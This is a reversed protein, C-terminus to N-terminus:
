HWINLPTQMWCAVIVLYALTVPIFVKWGLRMTHDYRYRPFTARVWIFVFVILSTKAGLWIWGPVWALFAWDVPALWGGLFMISAMASLLIINAYEAMFFMAFAMGSYEVMHGAVIESEGEVADFPHRATEAIACVIYIIFLPFLPIWNWSLFNLGHSAFFGHNQVTVIDSLNLSGSVLLVTVLVFGLPIGFSIMQASARVAGLLAYKSNSAWGAVIVGYVGISTIAMVFLLGANVDALVIDAGFPIVAWAALAPGITLVPALWFLFRDAREPVIIEKLLLKFADAIPQILGLPGVRNPGLRAHMWGIVKREWLTLCTVWGLLPLLIVHIKVLIWVLPWWSGFVMRGYHHALSLIEAMM